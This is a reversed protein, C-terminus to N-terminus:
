FLVGFLLRIPLYALLAWFVLLTIRKADAPLAKLGLVLMYFPYLLVDYRSPPKSGGAALQKEPPVDYDHSVWIKTRAECLAKKIIEITPHVSEQPTLLLQTWGAVWHEFPNHIDTATALFLRKGSNNANHADVFYVSEPDYWRVENNIEFGDVGCTVLEDRTPHKLGGIACAPQWQTWTIHSIMVVAGLAHAKTIAAKLNELTAVRPVPDPFDMIGMFIMHCNQATWEFGPILVIEPYKSQFAVFEANGKATNHDTLVMARFGNAIHWKINQEVTMKGDSYLTHAHTDMFFGDQPLFGPLRRYNFFEDTIRPVRRYFLEFLIFSIGILLGIFIAWCVLGLLEKWWILM